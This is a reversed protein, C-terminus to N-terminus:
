GRAGAGQGPGRRSASASCLVACRSRPMPRSPPSRSKGQTASPAPSPSDMWGFHGHDQSWPRRLGGPAVFQIAQLSALVAAGSCSFPRRMVASDRGVIPRNHKAALQQRCQLAQYLTQAPPPVSLPLPVLLQEGVVSSSCNGLFRVLNRGLSLRQEGHAVASGLCGPWQCVQVLVPPVLM